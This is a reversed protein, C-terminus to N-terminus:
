SGLLDSLGSQRLDGDILLTRQRQAFTLALNASIVSKGEGKISSTIVLKKLNRQEQFHRLRAALVRFKEAGISEPATTAALRPHSALPMSSGPLGDLGDPCSEWGHVPHPTVASGRTLSYLSKDM